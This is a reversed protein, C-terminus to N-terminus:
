VCSNAHQAGLPFLVCRMFAENEVSKNECGAQIEIVQEELHMHWELLFEYLLLICSLM